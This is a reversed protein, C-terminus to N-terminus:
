NIVYVEKSQVGFDSARQHDEFFIDIWAEGYPSWGTDEVVYTNGDIVVETGMPLTNCAITRGETAWTGSATYGSSYEGCCAPCSCYATCTYTGIYTLVPNDSCGYQGQEDVGSDDARESDWVETEEMGGSYNDEDTSDTFVGSDIDEGTDGSDEYATPDNGDAADHNAREIREEQALARFQTFIARRAKDVLSDVNREELPKVPYIVTEQARTPMAASAVVTYALASIFLAEFVGRKM